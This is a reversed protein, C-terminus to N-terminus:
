EVGNILKIFRKDIQYIGLIIFNTFDGDQLFLMAPISIVVMYIPLIKLIALIEIGLGGVLIISLIIVAIV